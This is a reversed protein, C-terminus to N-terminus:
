LYRKAEQGEVCAYLEVLHKSPSSQIKPMLVGEVQFLGVESKMLVEIKIPHETGQTIHVKEISNDISNASYKHIDGETPKTPIELAIRARGKTMDCGDAILILGAEISHIPHTAMHGLIGEMAMSRIITRRMTDEPLNKQLVDTIIQYSIIGSYLEHDKRGITMGADHLFAAIMVAVVSDAFSGSHEKQLSTEVGADHLISLMKLANHCVTRMHVPGHDNLGLRTISVTNAYDQIAKIEENELLQKMMRVPLNDDIDSHEVIDAVLKQIKEELIIEKQSKNQMLMYFHIFTYPWKWLPFVM